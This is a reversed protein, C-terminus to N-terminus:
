SVGLNTSSTNSPPADFVYLHRRSLQFQWCLYSAKYRHVRPTLRWRYAVARDRLSSVSGIATSPISRRRRPFCSSDRSYASSEGQIHPSHAPQRPVLRDFRDHSVLNEPASPSLFNENKRNLQGRAPNPVMGTSAGGAINSSWVYM